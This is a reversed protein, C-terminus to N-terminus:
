SLQARDRTTPAAIEREDAAAIENVSKPTASTARQAPTSLAATLKQNDVKGEWKAVVITAVANGIFNTISRCESMFRDVGLILAIGAVPVSPVVTLTAALTVFGAGTVGAAGKSSLVAIALLLAQDALTLNVGTAQAIFLAALTLYINTGDLNFSYGTPVVVGVVTKECGAAELKEILAPLASESSSTGLVLLLEERLYVVLRFISFGFAGAVLGLVGFIFLASTAYFTAVLQALNAISELGYRGITFAFAGFAGIPAAKMVIHVVKFFAASAAELLHTVPRATEGAITLGVGFLVSFLLVQLLEGSAFAGVITTPIINLLFGVISQDHAANLFGSLEATDLTAPDINMGAGPRVVNAVILGLILAFTSMVFFYGFAKATVRGLGTLDKVNAIGTTVTLFIVPAIIMKVLKIFATGLPQLAAGQEPFFHGFTGGAIIAVIILFYANGWIPRKAHKLSGTRPPINAM